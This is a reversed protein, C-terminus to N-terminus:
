PSIDHRAEWAESARLCAPCEWVPYRLGSGCYLYAKGDNPFWRPRSDVFFHKSSSEYPDAYVSEEIQRTMAEHHLPCISADYLIRDGDLIRVLATTTWERGGPNSKMCQFRYSRSTDVSRYPPAEPPWEIGLAQEKQGPRLTRTVKGGSKEFSLTGTSDFLCERHDPSHIVCDKGPTACGMIICPIGLLGTAFLPFRM